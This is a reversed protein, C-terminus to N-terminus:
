LSDARNESLSRRQPTKFFGTHICRSKRTKVVTDTHTKCGFKLLMRQRSRPPLIQPRNQYHTKDQDSTFHNTLFTANRTRVPLLKYAVPKQIDANNRWKCTPVQLDAPQHGSSSNSGKLPNFRRTLLRRRMRPLSQRSTKEPSSQGAYWM